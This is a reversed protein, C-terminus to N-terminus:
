LCLAVLVYLSLHIFVYRCLPKCAYLGLHMVYVLM